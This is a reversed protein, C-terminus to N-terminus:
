VNYYSCDQALGDIHDTNHVGSIMYENLTIHYWLFRHKYIFYGFNLYRHSIYYEEGKTTM